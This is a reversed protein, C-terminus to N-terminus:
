FWAKGSYHHGSVVVLGAARFTRLAQDLEMRRELYVPSQLTSDGPSPVSASTRKTATKVKLGGIRKLLRTMLELTFAASISAAFGRFHDDKNKDGHDQVGKVVLFHDIKLNKRVAGI